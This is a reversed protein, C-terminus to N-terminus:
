SMALMMRSVAGVLRKLVGNSSGSAESTGGSEAKLLSSSAAPRGFGQSPPEGGSVMPRRRLTPGGHVVPRRPAVCRATWHGRRRRAAKNERTTMNRNCGDRPIGHNAGTKVEKTVGGDRFDDDILTGLQAVASMSGLVRAERYQFVISFRRLGRCVM